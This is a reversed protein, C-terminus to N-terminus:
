LLFLYLGQPDRVAPPIIVRQDLTFDINDMMECQANCEYPICFADDAILNDTAPLRNTIPKDGFRDNLPHLPGQPTQDFCLWTLFSWFQLCKAFFLITSWM